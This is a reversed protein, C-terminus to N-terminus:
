GSGSTRTARAREQLTEALNHLDKYIAMYAVARQDPTAKALSRLSHKDAPGHVTLMRNAVGVKPRLNALYEFVLAGTATDLGVLVQAYEFLAAPDSERPSYVEGCLVSVARGQYTVRGAAAYSVAAPHVTTIAGYGTWRKGQRIQSGAAAYRQRQEESSDGAGGNGGPQSMVDEGELISARSDLALRAGYFTVMARTTDSQPPESQTETILLWEKPLDDWAMFIYSQEGTLALQGLNARNVARQLKASGCGAILVLCCAVVSGLRLRM